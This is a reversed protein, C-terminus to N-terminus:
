ESWGSSAPYPSTRLQRIWRLPLSETTRMRKSTRLILLSNSIRRLGQGVIMQAPHHNIRGVGGIMKAWEEGALSEIETRSNLEQQLMSKRDSESLAAKEEQKLGGELGCTRAGSSEASRAFRDMTDGLEQKADVERRAFQQLHSNIAGM